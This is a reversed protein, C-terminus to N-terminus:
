ETAHGGAIEFQVRGARSLGFQGIKPQDRLEDAALEPWKQQLGRDVPGPDPRDLAKPHVGSSEVMRAREAVVLLRTELYVCPPRQAELVRPDSADQRPRQAMRPQRREISRDSRM